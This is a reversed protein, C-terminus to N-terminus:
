LKQAFIFQVGASGKYYKVFLKCLHYCLCHFLFFRLHYCQVVKICIQRLWRQALFGITFVILVIHRLLFDSLSLAMDRFECLHHFVHLWSFFKLKYLTHRTWDYKAELRHRLRSEFLGRCRENLFSHWWVLKGVKSFKTKLNGFVFHGLKCRGLIQLFIFKLGIHVSGLLTVRM